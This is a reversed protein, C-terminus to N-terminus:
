PFEPHPGPLLLSLNLPCSFPILVATAPHM